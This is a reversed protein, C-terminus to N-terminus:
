FDFVDLDTDQAQDAFSSIYGCNKHGVTCTHLMLFVCAEEMNQVPLNTGLPDPSDNLKGISASYCHATCRSAGTFSVSPFTLSADIM